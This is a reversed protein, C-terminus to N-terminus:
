GSRDGPAPGRGATARRLVEALRDPDVPKALYDDVGADLFRERDGKVAHATVAVIPVAPEVGPLGGRRIMRTAELGDMAPMRIDMLVVDFRERALASLVELGNAACVAVHGAQELLSTMLLRNVGNDEAVLVRLRDGAGPRPGAPSVGAEEAAAEAAELEVRFVFLSGRGEESEVRISGHMREAIRKCIALGLGTGGNRVTREPHTQTFSDFIRGISDAPIGIGTDRVSLLVWAKEGPRPPPGRDELGLRVEVSGHDTYKVANGALNVLIQRLRAADGLLRRPVAPDVSWSLALGKKEAAPALGQLTSRIMDRVEFPEACLMMMGAEIRSFDLIDGILEQLTLASDKSIQLFRAAPAPLGPEMLALDLM